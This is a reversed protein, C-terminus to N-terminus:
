KHPHSIEYPPLSKLFDALRKPVDKGYLLHTSSTWEDVGLLEESSIASSIYECFEDFDADKYLFSISTDVDYDTSLVCEYHTDDALDCSYQYASVIIRDDGADSDWINIDYEAESHRIVRQKYTEPYVVDPEETLGIPSVRRM